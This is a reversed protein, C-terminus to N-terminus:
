ASIMYEILKKTDKPNEAVIELEKLQHDADGFADTLILFQTLKSKLNLMDGDKSIMQINGECSDVVQSFAQLDKINYLKMTFRRKANIQHVIKM